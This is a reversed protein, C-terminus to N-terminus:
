KNIKFIKETSLSNLKISFRMESCWLESNIPENNGFLQGNIKRLGLYCFDDKIKESTVGLEFEPFKFSRLRISDGTRLIDQDKNAKPLANGFTEKLSAM